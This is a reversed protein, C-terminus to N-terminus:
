RIFRFANRKNELQWLFFGLDLLFILIEKLFSLAYERNAKFKAFEQYFADIQTQDFEQNLKTLMAPDSNFKLQKLVPYVFWYHFKHTKLDAFIYVAFRNLKSPMQVASGSLIDEVLNNGHKLIELSPNLLNLQAQTNFNTMIGDAELLSSSSSSFSATDLNLLAPVASHSPFSYFGKIHIPSEDLRMEDLKVNKLSNWFGIEVASSWRQLKVTDQAM